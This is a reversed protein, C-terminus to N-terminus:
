DGRLHRHAEPQRNGERLEPRPLPLPIIAAGKKGFDPSSYRTNCLPMFMLFFFHALHFPYQARCQPRIVSRSRAAYSM